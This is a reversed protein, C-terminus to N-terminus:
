VAASPLPLPRWRQRRGPLPLNGAQCKTAAPWRVTPVKRTCGTPAEGRADATELADDISARVRCRISAAEGTSGRFGTMGAWGAWLRQGRPARRHDALHQAHAIRAQQLDGLRHGGEVRRLQVCQQGVEV